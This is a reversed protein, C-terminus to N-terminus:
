SNAVFADYIKDYQKQIRESRKEYYSILDTSKSQLLRPLIYLLDNFGSFNLGFDYVSGGYIIDLMDKSEDDRIVKGNLLIDFYVPLVTERSKAGLYEVVAGVKEPNSINSPACITGAWNLTIYKEQNADFKPYPLIGFDFETARLEKVYRPDNMYFLARGSDFPIYPKGNVGADYEYTFAQDGVYLLDNLKEIINQSKSTNLDLIYRDDDDKRLVRQDCSYMFNIFQWDLEGVFGYLDAQTFVGDGDIDRSAQKAMESLKDLTWKGSKVLAYPNELAYERLLDKSFTIFGVDPLIFDNAAFPMYGNITMNENMSSNWYKKSFDVNPMDNWNYALNKSVITDLGSVCHTLAIDISNTGAMVERSIAPAITEIYGPIYTEIKINFFEETDIIRKYLADNVADGIEEDTFYYDNYLSWNPYIIKFTEGKFDIQEGGYEYAPDKATEEPLNEDMGGPQNTNGASDTAEPTDSTEIGGCSYIAPTAMILLAIFLCMIKKM